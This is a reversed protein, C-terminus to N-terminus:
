RWGSSWGPENLEWCCWLWFRMNQPNLGGLRQFFSLLPSPSGSIPFVSSSGEGARIHLVHVRIWSRCSSWLMQDLFSLDVLEYCLWSMLRWAGYLGHAVGTLAGLEVAMRASGLLEEMALLEPLVSGVNSCIHGLDMHM